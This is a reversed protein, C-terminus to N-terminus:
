ANGANSPYVPDVWYRGQIKYVEGSKAMRFLIQRTKNSTEGTAAAIEAPTMPQGNCKIADLTVNRTVSRRVTAAEGLISWAGANFVVATEKEEVDRGRVYLTRGNQDQDLVITTDACASLGNSGSLAELPDDAGGKKTHHLGLVCVGHKTAWAQLPAWTSYDSEYANQNKNGPPKIRQLVDIVVLRPDEVSLRWQELKDIFGRDLSPADTVFDIRALDPVEGYPFLGKMRSQIRREGNELDVCLADGQICDISGLAVGGTAVALLFDLGMWTKGLKQRGALVTFGGYLYGAVITKLAPFTAAMLANGNTRKFGPGTKDRAMAISDLAANSMAAVNM